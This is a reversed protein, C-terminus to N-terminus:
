QFVIVQRISYTNSSVELFYIGPKLCERSIKIESTTNDMLFEQAIRGDITIISIKVIELPISIRLYFFEEVVPNPYLTIFEIQPLASLHTSVVPNSLKLIYADRSNFATLATTGAGPEFDVTDFFNGSMYFTGNPSVQVDLGIDFGSSGMFYAWQYAGSSNLKAIFIEDGGSSVLNNIIGNDPNFDATGSFSGTIYISNLSDTKLAKANVFNSGGFQKVWQFDGTTDLKLVYTDYTGFTSATTVGASDPDFDVQGTFFGTLILGTHGDRTIGNIMDAGTGGVSKAWVYNGDTTLKVMFVDDSGSSPLYVNGPGPDFDGTTRFTGALYVDNNSDVILDNVSDTSPGGLQKAWVMNGTADLKVVFGEFGTVGPAQLIFAAPSPDFDASDSFSGAVFVNGFSDGSICRGMDLSGGGLQAAWLENGASDLKLVFADFDGHSSMQLTSSGGSFDITTLFIGTIYVFGNNDVYIAMGEDAGSSGYSKGWIFNGASDLKVLFIDSSGLTTVSFTLPGPDLDTTGSYFGVTYVNGQQDVAIANGVEGSSGGINRAWNLSPLQAYVDTFLFGILIFIFTIKKM